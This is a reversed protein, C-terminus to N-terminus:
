SIFFSLFVLVISFTMLGLPRAMKLVRLDQTKHSCVHRRAILIVSKGTISLGSDSNGLEVHLAM